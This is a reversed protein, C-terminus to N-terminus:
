SFINVVSPPKLWKWSIQNIIFYLLTLHDRSVQGVYYKMFRWMLLLFSHPEPIEATKLINSFNYFSPPPAPCPCMDLVWHIHAALIYIHDLPPHRWRKWFIQVNIVHPPPFSGPWKGWYFVCYMKTHDALIYITLLHFNGGNELYWSWDYFVFVKEFSRKWCVQLKHKIFNKSKLSTISKNCPISVYSAWPECAWRDHAWSFMKHAIQYM